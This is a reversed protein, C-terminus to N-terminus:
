SRFFVWSAVKAALLGVALVGAQKVSDVKIFGVAVGIALLTKNFQARFKEDLYMRLSDLEARTIHDDENVKEGM